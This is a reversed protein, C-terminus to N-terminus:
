PLVEIDVTASTLSLTTPNQYTIAAFRFTRGIAAAAEGPALTMVVTADGNADLTRTSNSFIPLASNFTKTLAPSPSLPVGYEPGSRGARDTSALLQYTLGAETVPFDLDFAIVGGAAARLETSDSGLFSDLAYVLVTGSGPGNLSGNPAAIVIEGLRDGNLDGAASVTEAFDDLLNGDGFFTSILRGDFGSHIFAAGRNNIPPDDFHMAGILFDPFGDGNVDGVGAVDWGFRDCPTEGDYFEYVLSGDVGSFVYAQGELDATDEHAGVIFDEVGDRNIDGVRDIASGFGDNPKFQPIGYLESGDMGSYAYVSGGGRGDTIIFDPTGDDNIDGLGAGAQGTRQWTGGIEYLLSFTKGSYVLASDTTGGFTGRSPSHVFFDECGDLDIDDLGVVESGFTEGPVIGDIRTLLSGDLGSFAYASGENMGGPSESPAGVLIDDVGDGNVDVAAVSVGFLGLLFQGEFQYILSGDSGSVVQAIGKDIGGVDATPAGLILEGIGDGNLDGIPAVSLGLVDGATGDFRLYENWDGGPSQQLVALLLNIPISFIM